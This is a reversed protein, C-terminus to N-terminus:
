LIYFALQKNICPFTEINQSFYHFTNKNRRFRTIKAM